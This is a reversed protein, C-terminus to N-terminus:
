GNGESTADATLLLFGIFVLFVINNKICFKDLGLKTLWCIVIYYCFCFVGGPKICLPEITIWANTDATVRLSYQHSIVRSKEDFFFGGKSRVV